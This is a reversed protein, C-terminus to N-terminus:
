VVHRREDTFPSLISDLDRFELASFAGIIWITLDWCAEVQGSVAKWASSHLLRQKCVSAEGSCQLWGSLLAM